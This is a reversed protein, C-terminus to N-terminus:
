AASFSLCFIPILFSTISLIDQLIIFLPSVAERLGSLGTPADLAGPESVLVSSSGETMGQQFFGVLHMRDAAASAM